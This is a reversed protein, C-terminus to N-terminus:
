KTTASDFSGLSSATDTLRVSNRNVDFADSVGEKVFQDNDRALLSLVLSHFPFFTTRKETGPANVTRVFRNLRDTFRVAITILGSTVHVVERGVNLLVLLELGFANINDGDQGRIIHKDHAAPASDFADFVFYAGRFSRQPNCRSSDRRSSKYIRHRESVPAAHDAERPRERSRDANPKPVLVLLYTGTAEEM